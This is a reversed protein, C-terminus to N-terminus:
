LPRPASMGSQRLKVWGPCESFLCYACSGHDDLNPGHGDGHGLKM